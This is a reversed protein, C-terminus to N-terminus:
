FYLFSVCFFFTKNDPKILQIYLTDFSLFFAYYACYNSGILPMTEFGQNISKSIINPFFIRIFYFLWFIFIRSFINYWGMSRTEKGMDRVQEDKSVEVRAFNRVNKTKMKIRNIKIGNIKIRNIKIRNM